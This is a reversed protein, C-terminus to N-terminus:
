TWCGSTAHDGQASTARLTIGREGRAWSRLGCGRARDDSDAFTPDDEVILLGLRGAFRTQDGDLTPEPDVLRPRPTIGHEFRNDVDRAMLGADGFVAFRSRPKCTTSARECVSKAIAEDSERDVRHDAANFNRLGRSGCPKM